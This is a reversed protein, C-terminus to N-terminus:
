SRTSSRMSASRGLGLIPDSNAYIIAGASYLLGGAGLLVLPVLGLVHVLQPLAIVAIWGLSLYSGAVVTRPAEIWGLTFAVGAAAGAWAVVLITWWCTFHRSFTTSTPSCSDVETTLTAPAVSVKSPRRIDGRAAMGAAVLESDSM